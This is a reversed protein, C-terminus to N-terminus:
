PEGASNESLFVTTRKRRDTSGILCRLLLVGLLTILRVKLTSRPLVSEVFRGADQVGSGFLEDAAPEPVTSCFMAVADVLSGEFSFLSLKSTTAYIGQAALSGVTGSISRGSGGKQSQPKAKPKSNSKPTLTPLTESSQSPKPKPKPKPKPRSRPKPKPDPATKKKEPSSRSPREEEGSDRSTEDDSKESGGDNGPAKDMRSKAEADSENPRVRKRSAEDATDPGSETAPTRKASRLVRTSDMFASPRKSLVKNPSSDILLSSGYGVNDKLVTPSPPTSSSPVNSSHVTLPSTEVFLKNPAGNAPHAAQRSSEPSSPPLEPESHKQRSSRTAPPTGRIVADRASISASLYAPKNLDDNVLAQFKDLPESNQYLPSLEPSIGSLAKDSEGFIEDCTELAREVRSSLKEDEKSETLGWMASEFAAFLDKDFHGALDLRPLCLCQTIILM